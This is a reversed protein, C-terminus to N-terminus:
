VKESGLTLLDKQFSVDTQRKVRLCPLACFTRCVSQSVEWFEEGQDSVGGGGPVSATVEKGSKGRKEVDKGSTKATKAKKAKSPRDDDDNDNENDNIFGDDIDSGAHTTLHRKPVRPPDSSLSAAKKTRPM